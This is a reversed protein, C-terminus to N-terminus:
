SLDTFYITLNTTYINIVHIDSILLIYEQTLNIVYIHIVCIDKILLIYELPSNIVLM